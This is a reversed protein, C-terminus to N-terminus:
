KIITQLLMLVVVFFIIAGLKIMTNDQIKKTMAAKNYTIIVENYDANINKEVYEPVVEITLPILKEKKSEELINTFTEFEYGKILSTNNGEETLETKTSIVKGDSNMKSITTTFKEKLDTFNKIGQRTLVSVGALVDIPITAGFNAFTLVVQKNGLGLVSKPTAAVTGDRIDQYQFAGGSVKATKFVGSKPTNFHEIIAKGGSSYATIIPSGFVYLIIFSGLETFFILGLILVTIALPLGTIVDASGSSLDFSPINPISPPAIYSM